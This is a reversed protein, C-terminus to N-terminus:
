RLIPMTLGKSSQRFRQPNSRLLQSTLRKARKLASLSATYANPTRLGTTQNVARGANQTQKPGEGNSIRVKSRTNNHFIRGKGSHMDDYIRKGMMSGYSVRAKTDDASVGDDM